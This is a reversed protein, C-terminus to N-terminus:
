CCSKNLQGWFQAWTPNHRQSLFPREGQRPLPMPLTTGGRVMGVPWAWRATPVSCVCLRPLLDLMLRHGWLLLFRAEGSGPRSAAAAASRALHRSGVPSLAPVRVPCGVSATAPPLASGGAVALGRSCCCRVDIGTGVPRREFPQPTESSNAITTSHQQAGTGCGLTSNKNPAHLAEWALPAFLPKDKTKKRGWKWKQVSVRGPYTNLVCPQLHAAVHAASATPLGCRFPAIAFGAVARGEVQQFRLACGQFLKTSSFSALTLVCLLVRSVIRSNTQSWGLVFIHKGGRGSKCVIQM